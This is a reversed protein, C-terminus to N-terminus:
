CTPFDDLIPAPQGPVNLEVSFVAGSSPYADLIAEDLGERASSIFLTKMERGGFCCNTPRPIPLEISYLEVGNRSYCKVAYGDWLSVWLNGNLDVAGGDPTLDEQGFLIHEKLTGESLDFAFITKRFSDSLYMVNKDESYAFTNPIGIGEVELRYDLSSGVSYISGNCGTPTNEMSGFWYRGDNQPNGDNTRMGTPLKFRGLKKSQGSTFDFNFLGQKTLMIVEGESTGFLATAPLELEWYNSDHEVMAKEYLRGMKIDVWFLSERKQNWMLGEGLENQCADFQILNKHSYNM